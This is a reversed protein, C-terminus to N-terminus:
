KINGRSCAAMTYIILEAEILHRPIYPNLDPNMYSGPYNDHDLHLECHTMEHALVSFLLDPTLGEFLDQNVIIRFNGNHSTGCMAVAMKPTEGIGIYTRRPYYSKNPSCSEDIIKQVEAVTDKLRPDVYHFSAFTQYLMILVLSWLSIRLIAKFRSM